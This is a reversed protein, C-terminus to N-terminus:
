RASRLSAGGSCCGCDRRESRGGRGCRWEPFGGGAPCSSRCGECVGTYKSAVSQRHWLQRWLRRWLRWLTAAARPGITGEAGCTAAHTRRVRERVRNPKPPHRVKLAARWHIKDQYLTCACHMEVVDAHRSSVAGSRLCSDTRGDTRPELVAAGTSLDLSAGLLAKPRCPCSTDWFGGTCRRVTGM